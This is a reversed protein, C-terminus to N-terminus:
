KGGNLSDILQRLVDSRSIGQDEAVQNLVLIQHDSVRVTLMVENAAM